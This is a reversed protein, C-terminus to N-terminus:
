KGPQDSRREGPKVVRKIHLRLYYEGPAAGWEPKGTGFTISDIEVIVKPSDSRYGNRLALLFSLEGASAMRGVEQILRMRWYETNERYEETKEGSLIMDFWKRKIPLTLM